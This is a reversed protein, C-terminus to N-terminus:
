TLSIREGIKKELPIKDMLKIRELGVEGDGYEVDSLNASSNSNSYLVACLVYKLSNVYSLIEPFKAFM